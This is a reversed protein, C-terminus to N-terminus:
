GIMETREITIKSDVKVVMVNGDAISFHIVFNDDDSGILEYARYLLKSYDNISDADKGILIEVTGAGSPVTIKYSGPKIDVGGIYLGSAIEFAKILGRESVAEDVVLKMALLEDDTMSSLDREEAFGLFCILLLALTVCLFKKM